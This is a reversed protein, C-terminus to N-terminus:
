ACNKQSFRSKWPLLYTLWSFVRFGPQKIHIRIEHNVLIGVYSPLIEDGVFGRWTTPHVLKSSFKSTFCKLVWTMNFSEVHGSLKVRFFRFLCVKFHWIAFVDNTLFWLYICMYIYIGFIILFWIYHVYQPYNAYQQYMCTPGQSGTM